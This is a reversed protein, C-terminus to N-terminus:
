KTTNDQVTYEEINPLKFDEDTVVDFEYIVDSFMDSYNDQYSVGTQSRVTFGTEADVYLYSASSNSFVNNFKYCDVNNAKGKSIQHSFCTIIFNILNEDYLTIQTMNEPKITPNRLFESENIDQYSLVKGEEFFVMREDSKGDYYTIMKSNSPDKTNFVDYNFNYLKELYQGEKYYIDFITIEQKGYTSWTIHYNDKNINNQAKNSLIKIIIANRLFISGFILIIVMLLLILIKLKRNYKKAYKISKNNVDKKEKEFDKKMNELTEKCENCEELHTEIYKKTEESTLEDIYSPLLDKIIKCNEKNEM